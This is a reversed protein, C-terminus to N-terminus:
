KGKPMRDRADPPAPPTLQRGESGPPRGPMGEPPPGSSQRTLLGMRELVADRAHESLLPQGEDDLLDYPGRTLSGKFLEPGTPPVLPLVEAVKLVTEKLKRGDFRNVLRLYRIEYEATQEQIFTDRRFDKNKLLVLDRWAELPSLKKGRWEEISPEERPTRYLDLAPRPSGSMDLMEAQYFLKRCAVTEERQEVMARNLHHPFNSLNRYFEYEFMFRAADWEQKEEPSRFDEDRMPPPMSNVPMRHKRAFRAAAERTNQEAAPNPFVMLNREGSDRWARASRTWADRSWAKGGGYRFSANAPLAGRSESFWDGVDWGEGDYWGEQQLREAMYRTGQAPYNRFLLTTMHKPRRQHAPDTIPESNGPLKKDAPPLPEQAYCFWTHAVGFADVDDGLNSTSTLASPDFPKEHSPPLPPFRATVPLQVDKKGPDWTRAQSPVGASLLEVQFISPVSYNDELFQVLQQPTECTFQKRRDRASERHMGEKLRRALQPHQRCFTEFEAWNFEPGQDTQKWFRAPDRENPPILTLQFLSRKYNTEDSQCIKHQTYFGISWRLDPHYMNQREGEALLEVGRTIYFYKDRVRDSEVSVNYALNWSQFLWPTIFHPQLKTLSRVLVELENWQNKKQKEIANAWLVCTALGRSGTLGLRVVAGTLEVEGRSQERIALREALGDIVGNRWIVSLTLLVLILGLYLLKRQRVQQQYPSAM